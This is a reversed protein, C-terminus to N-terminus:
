LTDLISRRAQRLHKTMADAARQQAHAELAAVLADHEAWGPANREPMKQQEFMKTLRRMDKVIQAVLPNGGYCAVTEHLQDDFKWHAKASPANKPAIANLGRRLRKVVDDPMAKAANFAAHPEILLRVELSNLYEELSVLRIMLSGDNSRIILGEGELRRLTERMPTRSVGLTECLIREQLVTGGSLERSLIMKLVQAYAGDTVSKKEALASYPKESTRELVTL